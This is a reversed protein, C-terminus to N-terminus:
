STALLELYQGVASEVQEEFGRYKLGLLKESEREDIQIPVPVINGNNPLLGKEVADPFKRKVIEFVDDWKTGDLGGSALIYGQAPVKPNLALVHSLAVDKVHVSAGPTYSADQGLAPKLVTFNTGALADKTHTVLEDAGVIFGPFINVVDFSPKTEEVWKESENLAHTKSAAYAAFYGDYPGTPSPIRSKENWVIENEPSTFDKWPIIAVTSSTIVVRKVDAEGEAAKLINLTGEVAPEIFVKEMDDGEKYASTIPSAVHIAYTAGKIAESYAGHALMDPVSVFELKNGPNLKKISPTALIKDAKSQSRIAARVHYGAELASVLVRFGLHGTAGTILILEGAM